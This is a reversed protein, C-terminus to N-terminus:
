KTRVWVFQEIQKGRKGNDDAYLTAEYSDDTLFASRFLFSSPSGVLTKFAIMVDKDEMAAHGFYVTDHGHADLYYVQKAVPDWGFRAMLTFPTKTDKGILTEGILSIGDAGLKWTSEVDVKELKAHWVGGVLRKLQNYTPDKQADAATSVQAGAVTSVAVVIL